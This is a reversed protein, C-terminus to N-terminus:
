ASAKPKLKIRPSVKVEHASEVSIVPADKADLVNRVFDAMGPDKSKAAADLVSALRKDELTWLAKTDAGLRVLMVFADRAGGIAAQHLATAGSVSDMTDLPAGHALLLEIAGTNDRNAAYLLAANAGWQTGCDYPVGRALMQGLAANDKKRLADAFDIAQQVDPVYQALPSASELMRRKSNDTAVLGHDVLAKMCELAAAEKGAVHGLLFDLPSLAPLSSMSSSSCLANVDAGHECLARVLQPQVDRLAYMLPSIPTPGRAVNVKLNPYEQLLKVATAAYNKECLEEIATEGFSNRGDPNAGRALYSQMKKWLKDESDIKTYGSGAMSVHYVFNETLSRVRGPFVKNVIKSLAGVEVTM